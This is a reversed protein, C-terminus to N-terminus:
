NDQWDPHFKMVKLPIKWTLQDESTLTYTEGGNVPHTFNAKKATFLPDDWLRKMDIASVGRGIYELIRENVIFRILEDKSSIVSEPLAAHADTDFRSKRYELMLERAKSESGARAECEALMMYLDPLDCGVGCYFTRGAVRKQTADAKTASTILKARLDGEKYMAVYEPKIYDYPVGTDSVYTTSVVYRLLLSESSYGGEPFSQFFDKAGCWTAANDRFSLLKVPSGSFAKTKTLSSNFHTLANAYDGMYWYVKGILYEGAAKTCRYIKYSDSLAPLAATMESLIWDYLDKVTGRTYSDSDETGANTVIPVAPDTAATSANYHKTFMLSAYFHFYARLMRAEALVEKKQAETADTVDMINNIIFNCTYIRTYPIDWEDCTNGEVQFPNKDFQFAYLGKDKEQSQLREVTKADGSLEEGLYFTAASSGNALFNVSGLMGEFHEYKTAYDKGRPKNNLFEKVCSATSFVTLIIALAFLITRKM